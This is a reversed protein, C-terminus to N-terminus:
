PSTWGPVISKAAVKEFFTAGSIRASMRFARGRHGDRRILRSPLGQTKGPMARMKQEDGTWVDIATAPKKWGVNTPRGPM